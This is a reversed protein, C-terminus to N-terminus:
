QKDPPIMMLWTEDAADARIGVKAFRQAPKESYLTVVWDVPMEAESDAFAWTGEAWAGGAVSLYIVAMNWSHSRSWPFTKYVLEQNPRVESGTVKIIPKANNANSFLDTFGIFVQVTLVSKEAPMYFGFDIAATSHQPFSGPSDASTLKQFRFLSMSVGHLQVGADRQRAIQLAQPYFEDVPFLTTIFGDFRQGAIAPETALWASAARSPALAVSFNLDTYPSPTSTPIPTPSSSPTPSRTATPSQVPM